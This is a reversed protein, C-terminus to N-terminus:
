YVSRVLEFKEAYELGVETGWVKMINEISEISRAYPYSRLEKRLIM